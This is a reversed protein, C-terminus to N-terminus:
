PIFITEKLSFLARALESWSNEARYESPTKERQALASQLDFLDKQWKLVQERESDELSDLVAATTIAAPFGLFSAEV